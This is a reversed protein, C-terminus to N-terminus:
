SLDAVCECDPHYSPWAPVQDAPWVGQYPACVDCSGGDITVTRPGPAQELAVKGAFAAIDTAYGKGSAPARVDRALAFAADLGDADIADQTTRNIKAAAKRAKASVWNKGQGPDFDIAVRLGAHAGEAKFHRDSVEHLEKELERDWREDTAAKLGKASKLSRYQREFHSLLVGEYEERAWRDRREFARARRPVLPVDKAELAKPQERYSGDQPLGNPDQPGMVNPAPKPDDGVTVNMPTILEDGDEVPPLNERARVENRTMWPGGAAATLQPFRQELDGQLKTNLDFEFYLDPESFEVELISLCLLGALSNCLPALVDSYFQRREDESEPPVNLMGFERAVEERTFQRAASVQADKPSIGTQEWEMGEDLIPDGRLKAARWQEAFRLADDQSWEPAELPRRIYGGKLGSKALEVLAAQVASDTAIEQRLTELKSLGLLPDTPSYGFWHLMDDPDVEFYTGDTRYVNYTTAMYHGGTVTVFDPPVRILARQSGEKLKLLYANDYVLFDTLFRYILDDASTRAGPHAMLLAAPHDERRKREDDDVREHLKLGLQAFNSAIYHIVSRVAPQTSYLWGYTANIGRQHAGVVRSNLNTGGLAPYPNFRRDQLSEVVAPSASLAKERRFLDLLGM